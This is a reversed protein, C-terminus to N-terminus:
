PFAGYTLALPQKVALALREEALLTVLNKRFNDSDETSVLVVKDLRDFIQAAYYFSGVLFNGTAMANTPVVPLGWLRPTTENIPDGVIYRGLSDKTMMIKRWDTNSLVMGTAPLNALETQLIALGLRDIATEGTVSFAGSYATAQPILGFLNVGTGDGSLIQAEEVFGLGYLLESDVISRLAPADDLIQRSALMFHAITTVPAQIQGFTLDSQPKTSAEVVPAGM